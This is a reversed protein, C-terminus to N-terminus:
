DEDYAQVVYRWYNYLKDDAVDEDHLWDKTAQIYSNLSEASNGDGLVDSMDSYLMNMVVYFSIEDIDIINHQKRVTSTTDYDWKSAPEMNDVWDEALEKTLVKGYAMEYLCIEMDEYGDKDYQKLRMMAEELMDSLKVMEDLDKGEVIKSIYHKVGM